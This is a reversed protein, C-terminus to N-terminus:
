HNYFDLERDGQLVVSKHRNGKHEYYGPNTRQIQLTVKGALDEIGVSNSNRTSINLKQSAFLPNWSQAHIPQPGLYRSKM